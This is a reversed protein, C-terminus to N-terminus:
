DGKDEWLLKDNRDYYKTVTTQVRKDIEGPRIADLDKRYYAVLAGGLLIVVLISVGIIKLMM